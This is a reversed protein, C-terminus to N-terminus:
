QRVAVPSPHRPAHTNSRNMVFFLILLAIVVAVVASSQKKRKSTRRRPVPNDERVTVTTRIRKEMSQHENRPSRAPLPVFTMGATKNRFVFVLPTM